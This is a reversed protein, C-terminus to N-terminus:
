RKNNFVLNSFHQNITTLAEQKGAMVGEAYAHTNVVTLLEGIDHVHFDLPVYIRRFCVHWVSYKDSVDPVPMGGLFKLYNVTAEDPHDRHLYYAM